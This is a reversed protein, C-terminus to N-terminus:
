AKQRQKDLSAGSPSEIITVAARAAAALPAAMSPPCAILIELDEVGLHARAAARATSPRLGELILGDTAAAGPPRGLLRARAERAARASPTEGSFIRAYLLRRRAHEVEEDSLGVEVFRQHEDCLLALAAPLDALAVGTRIMMVGAEREATLRAYAGYSWGRKVRIEQMLRSSFGGGFAEVAVELAQLDPHAAAVTPRAMLIQAHGRKPRSLITLRRGPTRTLPPLPPPPAGVGLAAVLPGLAARTAPVDVDGSATWLARGQTYRAEFFGRVIEPTIRALSEPSGLAGLGLPHNPYLRQRLLARLLSHDDGALAELEALMGRKARAVEADTFAPRTLIEGLLAILADLDESLVGAGLGVAHPQTFPTLEAGLEAVAEALARADRAMTGRTLARHTLTTLGELGPPAEAPRVDFYVNLHVYPFARHPVLILSPDIM